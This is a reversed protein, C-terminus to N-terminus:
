KCANITQLVKIISNSKINHILSSQWWKAQNRFIQGCVNFFKLVEPQFKLGFTHESTKSINFDQVDVIMDGFQTLSKGARNTNLLLHLINLIPNHEVSMNLNDEVFQQIGVFDFGQKYQYTGSVAEKNHYKYGGNVTQISNVQYM